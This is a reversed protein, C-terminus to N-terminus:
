RRKARSHKLPTLPGKMQLTQNNRILYLVNTYVSKRLSNSLPDAYKSLINSNKIKILNILNLYLLWFNMFQILKYLIFLEFSNIKYLYILNIHKFSM